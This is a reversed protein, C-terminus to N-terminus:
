AASIRLVADDTDSVLVLRADEYGAEVLAALADSVPADDPEYVCMVVDVDEVGILARAKEIEMTGCECLIVDYASSLAEVVSAIVKAEDELPPCEVQGHPIVDVDSNEDGHIADALPIDGTLLEAMGDEVSGTMLDGGFGSGSLDMYLVRRGRKALARALDVGALMANDGEPSLSVVYRSRRGILSQAAAAPSFDQAVASAPASQPAFPATLKDAQLDNAADVEHGAERVPVDGDVSAMAVQPPRQPASDEMLSGRATASRLARGSFLEALVILVAHLLMVALMVVVVIPVTKPFYPEAPVTAAAIVRADAPSAGPDTRSIAERYVGLYTELLERAATAERELARLAVASEGAEASTAKLLNLQATLEEERLRAIEADNELNALEKEIQTRIQDELSSLQSRLGRLRPHNGLLTTSLDAIQSQITIQQERLRQILASDLVDGVVEVPRGQQLADRVNRARAEADARTARVNSLEESIGSLQRTTLTDNGTVLVLDANARFEAVETEAQRVRQRLEDIEPELWAVAGATSQRKSDVQFDLYADTVANAVSAALRPDSSSFSVVVVSSQGARYVTLQEQVKRVLRGETAEVSPAAGLGLADFLSGILGREAAADFEPHSGLDLAEVARNVVESSRVVEVQSAIAQEDLSQTRNNEVDRLLASERQEILIRAEGRYLPQFSSVLIFAAIGAGLTTAAVVFRRAWIASALRGVDIDDDGRTSTEYSM